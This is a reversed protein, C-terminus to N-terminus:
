RKDATKTLGRAFDLEQLEQLAMRNADASESNETETKASDGVMSRMVLSDVTQRYAPRFTLTVGTLPAQTVERIVQGDEELRRDETGERLWAISLGDLNGIRVSTAVDRGLNTEPLQFRVHLGDAASHFVATGRSTRALLKTPDHEVDVRLDRGDALAADFAGPMIRERFGGLDASLQGYPAALGEVTTPKGEEEVLRLEEVPAWLRREQHIPVPPDLAYM